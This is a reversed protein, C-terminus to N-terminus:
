RTLEYLSNFPNDMEVHRVQALSLAAVLEALRARPTEPGGGV